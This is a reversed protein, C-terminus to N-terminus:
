DAVRCSQFRLSQARKEVSIRFSLQIKEIDSSFHKSSSSFIGDCGDFTATLLLKAEGENAEKFTLRENDAVM